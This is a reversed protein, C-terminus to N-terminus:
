RWCFKEIKGFLFWGEKDLPISVNPFIFIWLM